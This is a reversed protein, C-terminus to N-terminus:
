WLVVVDSKILDDNFSWVYEDHDFTDYEKVEVEDVSTFGNGEEDESKWVPWSGMGDMVLRHLEDYLEHVTM